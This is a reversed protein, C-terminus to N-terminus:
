NIRARDVVVEGFDVYETISQPLTPLGLVKEQGENCNIILVAKKSNFSALVDSQRFRGSSKFSFLVDEGEVLKFDCSDYLSGERDVVVGMVNIVTDTPFLCASLFLTVSLTIPLRLM